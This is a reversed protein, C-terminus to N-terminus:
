NAAYVNLTSFVELLQESKYPKPLYADMGAEYCKEIDEDLVSATLAIIPTHECHNEMEWRRIKKTATLGDMVPMMCDMLIVNYHHEGHTIEDLAEQGNNVVTYEYEARDLFFSAIKQNMLNDEVILVRKEGSSFHEVPRTTTDSKLGPIVERVVAEFRAGLFPLTVNADVLSVLSRNLFM